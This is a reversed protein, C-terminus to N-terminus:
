SLTEDITFNLFRNFPLAEKYIELLPKVIEKQNFFDDTLNHGFAYHKYKLLDGHIWDKPFGAPLKKLKDEDGFMEPFIKSFPKGTIELWENINDYIAQRVAKL